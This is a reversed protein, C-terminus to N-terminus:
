WYTALLQIVVQSSNLTHEGTTNYGTNRAELLANEDVPVTINYM